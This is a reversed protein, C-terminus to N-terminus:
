IFVGGGSPRREALEVSDSPILPGDDERAAQAECTGQAKCAGEGQRRTRAGEEKCGHDVENTM